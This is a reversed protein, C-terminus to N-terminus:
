KKGEVFYMNLEGKNKAEIKGRYSCVFRDRILLYTSESVNIKGAESNQEMRAATNVTDGWIDYAFKKIGVIGAVLGGSHIGIRVEFTRDGLERRRASMFELMEIAALVTNVAHDADAIPLGGVALYADGITKIKEIRHRSMIEDFTRFCIHLEDVLQQPTMREGAKTFDVFDTFLVSVNNFSRAESFGKEKLEEAVEEPLINLLLDDSKQKEKKLEGHQKEIEEKQLIVEATRVSVEHELQEKQGEVIRKKELEQEISKVSLEKVQELNHKLDKNVSAFSWALYLSMSIPLCLIALALVLFFLEEVPRAGGFNIDHFISLYLTTFLVFLALLLVGAGIIRAGKVKRYIARITLTVAELAVFGIGLGYAVIGYGSDLLFVFPMLLCFVAVIAFRVKRVSFLDNVFGSMSFCMVSIVFPFSFHISLQNIPNRGITFLCPIFFSCAISLCFLSFYLNSRGTRNYFYLFLHAISLALFIGCLLCFVFCMAVSRNYVSRNIDDAYGINMKIGAMNNEYLSNNEQANYNVYRIAIIHRGASPFVLNLPSTKPNYYFVSDKSGVRGYSNLKRGDIYVESAGYHELGIALPTNVMNTDVFVDRRFWGVGNFKYYKKKDSARLVLQSNVLEWKTDDYDVGAMASDDGASFRWNEDISFVGKKEFSDRSIMLTTKTTPQGFLLAPLLVLLFAAFRKM